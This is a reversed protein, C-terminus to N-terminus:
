KASGYANRIMRSRFARERGINAHIALSSVVYVALLAPSQYTLILYLFGIGIARGIFWVVSTKWPELTGKTASVIISQAYPTAARFLGFLAAAAGLVAMVTVTYLTVTPALLLAAVIVAQFLLIIIFKM